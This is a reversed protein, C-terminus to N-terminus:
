SCYNSVVNGPVYYSSLSHYGNNMLEVQTEQNTKTGGVKSGLWVMVNSFFIRKFM